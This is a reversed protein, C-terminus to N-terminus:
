GQQEEEVTDEATATVGYREAMEPDNPDIERMGKERLRRNVEALNNRVYEKEADTIRGRHPEGAHEPSTFDRRQLDSSCVDSSWDRWYRTHRRRSSFFFFFCM